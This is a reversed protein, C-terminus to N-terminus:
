SRKAPAHKATDRAIQAEDLGELVELRRVLEECATRASADILLDLSDTATRRAVTEAHDQTICENQVSPHKGVETWYQTRLTRYRELLARTVKHIQITTHVSEEAAPTKKAM